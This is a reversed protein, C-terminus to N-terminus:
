LETFELVINLSQLENAIHHKIEEINEQFKKDVKDKKNKELNLETIKSKLYDIDSELAKTSDEEIKINDIKQQVEDILGLKEKIPEQNIEKIDILELLKEQGHVEFSYKFNDRYEKILAMQKPASHYIRALAKFDIMERLKQIEIVLTTKLKELEQKEKMKEEYERSRTIESIEKKKDRIKEDLSKIKEDIASIVERNEDETQEINEIEKIKDKVVLITKMQDILVHNDKVIGNFSKFFKSISERVRGLEEGILYTSKQFSIISKKEFESFIFNIKNVLLEFSDENLERLDSILKKLYYIFNNLNQKVILKEMELAKKEKLDVHELANITEELERILESLGEEIQKKPGRQKEEIEQRKKSLTEKINDFSIFQTEQEQKKTKFFDFIGM